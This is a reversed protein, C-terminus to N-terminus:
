SDSCYMHADLGESSSLLSLSFVILRFSWNHHDDATKDGLAHCVRSSCNPLRRNRHKCCLENRRCLSSLRETRASKWPWSVYLVGGATVGLACFITFIALLTCSAQRAIDQM